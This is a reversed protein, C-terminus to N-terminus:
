WCIGEYIKAERAKDIGRGDIVVKGRYNLNNYEEWDTLILIADSKLVEEKTVYEIDQGPLLGKFNDMAMPDNAKIGAGEALLRRAVLMARSERVDDTGPKFALGLLGITAGKLPLHKKLLEVMKHGQMENVKLVAEMVEPECGIEKSKYILGNIDKLLCGGGFGVGANLFQNGIRDDMGMGRAVENTNVGLKKCINGIENIFSIKTALFANSAIKIMEATKLDTMLFPAKFDRYLDMLVDGSRSDYSGIVVRSPHFFDNIAKGERLFEPSMCVGIDAGVKKGSKELAPILVEETSGPPVTSKLCVVCYHSSDQLVVAIQEGAERVRALSLSGDAASDTGVCIFVLESDAIKRYDTSAETPVEKLLAELGEEWIPCVGSNIAKVKNEDVDILEVSNGLKALCVGTVLGVYGSGIVSVKM